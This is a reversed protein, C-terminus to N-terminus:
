RINPTIMQPNRRSGSWGHCIMVFFVRSLINGVIFGDFVSYHRSFNYTKDCFAFTQQRADIVNPVFKIIDDNIEPNKEMKKKRCIRAGFSYHSTYVSSLYRFRPGRTLLRSISFLFIISRKRFSIIKLVNTSCM